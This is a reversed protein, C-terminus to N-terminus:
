KQSRSTEDFVQKQTEMRCEDKFINNSLCYDILKTWKRIDELCDSKFYYDDEKEHVVFANEYFSVREVSRCDRLELNM